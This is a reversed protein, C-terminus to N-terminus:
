ENTEFLEIQKYINKRFKATEINEKFNKTNRKGKIILLIYDFAVGVWGLPLFVSYKKVFKYRKKAKYNFTFFLQSFVSKDDVTHNDRNGIFKIQQERGTQKHGFNGGTFIDEILADVLEEEIYQAFDKNPAGLYKVSCATMLKAAKWLGIKKLPEEFMQIFEENSFHSVFVAWDCLHRLGFGEATLHSIMHLLIILGQHFHSPVIINDFKISKEFIDAFYDKIIDGKENKPIGVIDRHLELILGDNSKYHIHKNYGDLPENTFFGITNLARDAIEIESSSVLIDIDGMARLIPEPYYAASAYGKLVLYPIRSETLAKNALIHGNKILINKALDNLVRIKYHNENGIFQGILSFVTQKRAETILEETVSVVDRAEEGFLACSCLTLLDKQYNLM